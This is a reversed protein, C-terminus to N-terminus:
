IGGKLDKIEPVVSTLTPDEAYVVKRIAKLKNMYNVLTKVSDRLMTKVTASYNRSEDGVLKSVNNTVQAINNWTTVMSMFKDASLATGLLKGDPGPMISVSKIPTGSSVLYKTIAIVTEPEIPRDISKMEADSFLEELKNNITNLEPASYFQNSADRKGVEKNLSSFFQEYEAVRTNKMKEIDNVVINMVDYFQKSVKVKLPENSYDGAKKKDRSFGIGCLGDIASLYNDSKIGAKGFCKYFAITVDRLNCLTRYTIFGYVRPDTDDTDFYIGQLDTITLDIPHGGTTMVLRATDKIAKEFYEGIKNAQVEDCELEQKDLEEMKKIINAMYDTCKGDNGLAGEYKNLFIDLDEHNPLLNIIMFRNMVPPLLGMTGGQTLNASYNGAAVILTDEPLKERGCSREFILHLLAAQVQENATTIEDLFLVTKIGKEHNDLVQQFWSPRLHIAAMPKEYTVDRPSVDYGMVEEHTTSNGRLLVYDWPQGSTVSRVKCYMYLTSTKGCGPNSLLLLPCGSKESVKLATFIDLNLNNNKKAM